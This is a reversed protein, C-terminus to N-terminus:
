LEIRILFDLAFSHDFIDPRSFLMKHLLPAELGGPGVILGALARLLLVGAGLVLRATEASSAAHPPPIAVGEESIVNFLLSEKRIGSSGACAVLSVAIREM